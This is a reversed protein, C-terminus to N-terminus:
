PSASTTCRRACTPGSTPSCTPRPPWRTTSSASPATTRRSPTSSASSRGATGFLEEKNNDLTGTFKGLNEITDHFQQGQGDFNKATSDLLRTLSGEKNAGGPGLAVTLQDISAYIQDLELPRRPRSTTLVANNRLPQEGKKYAPTLQVFRDGVIAPSIIVAEADAPVDYKADYWM